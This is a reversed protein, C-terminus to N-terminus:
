SKMLLLLLSTTILNLSSNALFIMSSNTESFGFNYEMVEVALVTKHENIVKMNNHDPM